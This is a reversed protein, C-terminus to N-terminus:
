RHGRVFEGVAEARDNWQNDRPHSNDHEREFIRCYDSNPAVIAMIVKAKETVNWAYTPVQVHKGVDDLVITNDM